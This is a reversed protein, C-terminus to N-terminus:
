GHILPFGCNKKIDSSISEQDELSMFSFFRGTTELCIFQSVWNNRLLHVSEVMVLIM